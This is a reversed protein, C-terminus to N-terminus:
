QAAKMSESTSAVNSLATALESACQCRDKPEKAMARHVIDVLAKPPSEGPSVLPPPPLGAHQALLGLVSDSTYPPHGTLMHFMVCGLAYIDARVDVAVGRAQEPSMYLPTGAIAHTEPGVVEGETLLRAIGFDTIKPRDNACVFINAPSLDRHVVGQKGAAVLADAIRLALTIVRATPMPGSQELIRELTPAEILEMVIYNRGDPLTGCDTVDVIGPHRARCAARAELTASVLLGTTLGNPNEVDRQPKM